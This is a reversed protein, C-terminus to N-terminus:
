RPLRCVLLINLRRIIINLYKIYLFSLLSRTVHFLSSYLIVCAHFVFYFLFFNRLLSFSFSLPPLLSPSSLPTLLYPFSLSPLHSPFSLFLLSPFSLSPLLSPFSFPFLAFLHHATLYLSLPIYNSLLHYIDNRDRRYKPSTEM